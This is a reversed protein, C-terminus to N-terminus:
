PKKHGSLERIHTETFGDNHGGKIKRKIDKESPTVSYDHGESASRNIQDTEGKEARIGFNEEAWRLLDNGKIRTM